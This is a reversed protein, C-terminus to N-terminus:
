DHHQDEDKNVKPKRRNAHFHVDLLTADGESKQEQLIQKSWM